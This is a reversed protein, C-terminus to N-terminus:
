KITFKMVIPQKLSHGEKSKVKDSVYLFYTEGKVYDELPAEVTVINDKNTLTINELVEGNENKIFVNEKNISKPDILDNFKISWDKNVPVNNQDKWKQARVDLDELLKQPLYTVRIGKDLLAQIDKANQSESSLTLYNGSLNVHLNNTGKHNDLKNVLSHIDTIQNNSVSLYYLSDSIAISSIDSIGNNDLSLGQLQKLDQLFSFDTIGTDSLNLDQLNKFKGILSPDQIQNGQLSLTRLNTFYQLDQLSKINQYPLYLHEIKLADSIKIDGILKGIDHRIQREFNEDSFHITKNEYVMVGSSAKHEGGKTEVTITVEGESIATVLGNQDVKAINEDSSIWKLSKNSANYPNVEAHLSNSQGTQLTLTAPQLTVGSINIPERQPVYSVKVGKDLLTQIDVANQTGQSLDLLNYSLYVSSKEDLGSNRALASVDEIQNSELSLYKLNNLHELPSINTIQNGRLTLHTLNPHFSLVEIDRIKNHSLDLYTLNKLDELFRIDTIESNRLNLESLNNLEGLKNLHNIDTKGYSSLRQLNTFKELGTIDSITDDLSLDMIPLVDSIRVDGNVRKVMVRIQKELNKDNFSVVDDSLVLVEISDQYEGDETTVSITAKGESQAKIKGDQDITAVEENSSAWKVNRNVNGDYPLVTANLKINDYKEKVLGLQYLKPDNKNGAHIQVGTVRSKQSYYYVSRAQEEIKKIINYTESGQSANLYNDNLDLRDLNTLSKLPTIDEIQNNDLYLDQLNVLNEIGQLNSIEKNSAYLQTIGFLDSKLIDGTEKGIMERIVAELNPDAFNVVDNSLVKIKSSGEFEGDQTTATIVAEGESIATVLGTADVTAVSENTSSWSINQNSAGSPQIRADLSYTQDVSLTLTKPTLLLGTVKIVEKQPSFSVNAGKDMLMQIDKVPQDKQSLSLLNNTLTSPRAGKMVMNMM